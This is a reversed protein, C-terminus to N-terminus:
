VVQVTVVRPTDPVPEPTPAPTPEPENLNYQPTDDGSEYYPDPTRTFDLKEANAMAQDESGFPGYEKGNCVFYWGKAKAEVTIGPLLGLFLSALVLFVLLRRRPKTQSWKTYQKTM